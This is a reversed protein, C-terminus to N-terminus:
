LWVTNFSSCCSATCINWLEEEFIYASNILPWDSDLEQKIMNAFNHWVTSQNRQRYSLVDATGYWSSQSCRSHTHFCKWKSVVTRQHNQRGVYCRGWFHKILHRIGSNWSIVRTVVALLNRFVLARQQNNGVSMENLWARHRAKQKGAKHTQRIQSFIAAQERCHQRWCIRSTLFLAHLRHFEFAHTM